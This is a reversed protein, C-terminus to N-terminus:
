KGLTPDLWDSPGDLYDNSLGVDAEIVVCCM